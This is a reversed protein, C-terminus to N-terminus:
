SPFLKGLISSIGDETLEDDRNRPKTTSTQKFIKDRWDNFSEEAGSQIYAMWLKWENDKEAAEKRREYEGQLFDHVFTGFRRQNIYRAMLDMPSSYRHYLLDM